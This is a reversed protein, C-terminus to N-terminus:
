APEDDPVVVEDIGREEGREAQGLVELLVVDELGLLDLLDLLEGTADRLRIEYGLRGAVLQWRALEDAVALDPSSAGALPWCMAEVEGHMLVVMTPTDRSQVVRM